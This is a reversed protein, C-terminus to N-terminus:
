TLVTIDGSRAFDAIKVPLRPYFGRAAFCECRANCTAVVNRATRAAAKYINQKNQQSKVPISNRQFQKYCFFNFKQETKLSPFFYKFFARFSSPQIYTLCCWTKCTKVCAIYATCMNEGGRVFCFNMKPAVNSAESASIAKLKSSGAKQRVDCVVPLIYGAM